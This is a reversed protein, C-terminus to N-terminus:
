TRSMPKSQTKPARVAFNHSEANQKKPRRAVLLPKQTRNAVNGSRAHGKYLRKKVITKRVINEKSSQNTNLPNKQSAPEPLVVQRKESPRRIKVARQSSVDQPWRHWRLGKECRRTVVKDKPQRRGLRTTILPMLDVVPTEKM